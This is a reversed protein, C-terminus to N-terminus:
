GATELGDSFQDCVFLNEEVALPFQFVARPNINEDRVLRDKAHLRLGFLVLGDPQNLLKNYSVQQSLFLQPVGVNQIQTTCM